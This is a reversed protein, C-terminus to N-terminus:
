IRFGRIKIQQDARGLYEVQGDVRYR